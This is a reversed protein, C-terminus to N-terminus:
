EVEIEPAVYRPFVGEPKPLSTGSVLRTSIATFDRQDAPQGLLDLLTAASEPMVPQVLLAAIRVVELTTYLVTSFRQQDVAAESKRLV